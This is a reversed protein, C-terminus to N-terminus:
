KVKGSLIYDNNKAIEHCKVCGEGKGEELITQDPAYKLWFWDGAEPNYGNLRYMVTTAQLKKQQNYNEKVIITGDPLQGQKNQIAILTQPSVYTILLSGHPAEGAYLAEKGPYLPWQRYDYEETIYRILETASAPPLAYSAELNSGTQELCEKKCGWLLALLLGVTTIAYRTKM